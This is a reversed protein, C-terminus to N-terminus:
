APTPDTTGLSGWDTFRIARDDIWVDYVPKGMLLEDHEIGWTKLWHKTMRYESWSRATYIVVTHGAARWARVRQQVGIKPRALSREFTKEETCIVGDLDLVVTM